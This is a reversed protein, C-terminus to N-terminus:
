VKYLLVCDYISIMSVDTGLVLYRIESRRTRCVTAKTKAGLVDDREDWIIMIIIIIMMM